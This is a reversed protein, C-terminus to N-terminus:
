MEGCNDVVVDEVPADGRTRVRELRDVVEFGDIVKGFVVHKGDLHSLRKCCIFFQCGNTNPGSNAMSVSYKEHDYAFLEDDFRDSGYICKAGTGNSKVFDGGQIM